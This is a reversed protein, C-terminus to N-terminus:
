NWLGFPLPIKPIGVENTFDNIEKRIYPEVMFMISDHIEKENSNNFEGSRVIGELTFQLRAAMEDENFEYEHNDKNKNEAEIYILDFELQINYLDDVEIDNFKGIPNHTVKGKFRAAGQKSIAEADNIFYNLQKKKLDLIDLSVVM